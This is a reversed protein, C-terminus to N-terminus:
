EVLPLSIYWIQMFVPASPKTEFKREGCSSQSLVYGLVEFGSAANTSVQLSFNASIGNTVKHVIAETYVGKGPIDYNVEYSLNGEGGVAIAQLEEVTNYVTYGACNELVDRVEQPLTLGKKSLTKELDSM